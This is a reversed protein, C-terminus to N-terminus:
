KAMETKHKMNMQKYIRAFIRLKLCLFAQTFCDYIARLALKIINKLIELLETFGASVKLAGGAKVLILRGSRSESGPRFSSLSEHYAVVSDPCSLDRRGSEFRPCRPSQAYCGETRFM